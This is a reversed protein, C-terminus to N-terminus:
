FCFCSCFCFCFCFSRNPTHAVDGGEHVPSRGPQALSVWGADKGKVSSKKEECSPPLEFAQGWLSFSWNPTHAAEVGEHVPPPTPQAFSVWGPDKGKVSSKKQECSPPLEFAQGWHSFSWNPTHAAEAGEHVPPPTSQALSVWGTDKGKISSKREECLPPLEFAQGWPSFSWNPTHAAEV